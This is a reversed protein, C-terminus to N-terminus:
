LIQLVYHYSINLSISSLYRYVEKNRRFNFKPMNSEVLSNSETAPYVLGFPHMSSDKSKFEHGHPSEAMYIVREDTDEDSDNYYREHNLNDNEQLSKRQRSVM